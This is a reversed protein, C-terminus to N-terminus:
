CRRYHKGSPTNPRRRRSRRPPSTHWPLSALALRLLIGLCLASSGFRIAVLLKFATMVFGVHIGVRLGRLFAPEIRVLALFHVGANAAFASVVVLRFTPIDVDSVQVVHEIMGFMEMDVIDRM